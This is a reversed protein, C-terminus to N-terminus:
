ATKQIRAAVNNNSKDISGCMLIATEILFIKKTNCLWLVHLKLVNWGQSM